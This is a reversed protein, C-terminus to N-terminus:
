PVSVCLLTPRCLTLTIVMVAKWRWTNDWRFPRLPLLMSPAPRRSHRGSARRKPPSVRKLFIDMTTQKVQKKSEDYILKYASLASHITREILSFRKNNPDMVEFTKLLKSLDASVGALGNVTFKRPLEEKRQRSIEKERAEEEALCRHELGLLEENNLEWSRRWSGKLAMRMWVRNFDHAMEAVAKTIKAAEKEQLDKSTM